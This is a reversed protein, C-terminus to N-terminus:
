KNASGKKNTKSNNSYLSKTAVGIALLVTHPVYYNNLMNQEILGAEQWPHSKLGRCLKDRQKEETNEM